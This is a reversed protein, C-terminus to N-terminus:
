WLKKNTKNIIYNYIDQWNNTRKIIRKSYYKNKNIKTIDITKCDINYPKDILIKDYNGDILNLDYDDILLDCNVLQKKSICIIQNSNLFPFYKFLVNEIKYSFVKYYTNTMIYIEFRGDSNLKELYYQADEYPRINDYLKNHHLVEFIQEETLDLCKTVDWEKIDEISYTKNHKINLEDIWAEILNEITDDMDVCIIIKDQKKNM